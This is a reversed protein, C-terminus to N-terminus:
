GIRTDSELKPWGSYQECLQAMIHRMVPVIIAASVPDYLNSIAIPVVAHMASMPDFLRTRLKSAVDSTAYLGIDPRVELAM